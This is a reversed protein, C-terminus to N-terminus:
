DSNKERYHFVYTRQMQYNWLVAVACAVATKSVIYSIGTAETMLTTLLTNLVISGVWVVLYRMAVGMHGLHRAQFVWRYNVACNVVGGVIAGALTAYGYWVGLLEVLAITLAFDAGSAVLASAEAKCFTLLHLRLGAM